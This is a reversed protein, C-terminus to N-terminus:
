LRARDKDEIKALTEDAWVMADSTAEDMRDASFVGPMTVHGEREYDALHKATDTM